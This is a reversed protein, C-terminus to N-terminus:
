APEQPSFISARAPSTRLAATSTDPSPPCPAPPPRRSPSSPPEAAPLSSPSGPPLFPSDPLYVSSPSGARCTICRRPAVAPRVDLMAPAQPCSLHSPPFLSDWLPTVYPQLGTFDRFYSYMIMWM